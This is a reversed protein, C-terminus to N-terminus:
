PEPNTLAALLGLGTIDSAEFSYTMSVIQGEDIDCELPSGAIVAHDILIANAGTDDVDLRLSCEDGPAFQAGVDESVKLEITGKTDRVGAVARKHGNTTNANYKHVAATADLTWKVVEVIQTSPSGDPAGFLANGGKGSFGKGSM